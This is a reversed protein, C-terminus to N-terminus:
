LSYKRFASLVLTPMIFLDLYSFRFSIPVRLKSYLRRTKKHRHFDGRQIRIKGIRGMERTKPTLHAIQHLVFAGSIGEIESIKTSIAM